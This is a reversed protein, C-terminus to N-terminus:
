LFIPSIRFSSRFLGALFQGLAKSFYYRSIKALFQGLAQDFYYRSKQRFNDRALNFFSYGNVLYCFYLYKKNNNLGGNITYM